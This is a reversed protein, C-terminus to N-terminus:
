KPFIHDWGDPSLIELDFLGLSCVVEDDAFLRDSSGGCQRVDCESLFVWVVSPYSDAGGVLPCAGTGEM